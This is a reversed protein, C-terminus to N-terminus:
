RSFNEGSSRTTKNVGGGGLNAAEDNVSAFSAAVM